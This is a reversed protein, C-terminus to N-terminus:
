CSKDITNYNAKTMPIPKVYVDAPFAKKNVVYQYMEHVAAAGIANPYIYNSALFGVNAAGSAWAQCALDGGLGAGDIDSPSVGHAALAKGGGTVGDDNCGSLLWHTATPHATAVPGTSSFALTATGDYPVDLIHGTPFGAAVLAAKEANTRDNCTPLSPVVYLLAYSDASSWGLRKYNAVLLNGSSTGFQTADIGVFPVQKGNTGAFGNDSAMISIHAAKALSVMRPGLSAAPAVVILGNVKAAIAAQIDSITTASSNSENEVKVTAGLKKAEAKAGNAELVFYSQDGNTQLYVFTPHSSAASTSGGCAALTLSLATATGLAVATGLRRGGFRLRSGASRQAVLNPPWMRLLDGIFQRM